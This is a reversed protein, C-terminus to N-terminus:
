GEVSRISCSCMCLCCCVRVLVYVFLVGLSYTRTRVVNVRLLGSASCPGCVHVLINVGRVSALKMVAGEWGNAAAYMLPTSGEEDTVDTRGASLLGALEQEEGREALSLVLHVHEMGGRKNEDVHGGPM